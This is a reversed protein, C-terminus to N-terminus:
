NWGRERFIQEKAKQIEDFKRAYLEQTVPDKDRCRDPHYKFSLKRWADIVQEKTSNYPIELVEYPDSSDTNPPSTPKDDDKPGDKPEDKPEQPEQQQNPKKTKTKNKQRNVVLATTAVSVGIFAIVSILSYDISQSNQSPTLTSTTSSTIHSTPSLTPLLTPNSTPDPLNAERIEQIDVTPMVANPPLNRIRVWQVNNQYNQSLQAMGIQASTTSFFDKSNFTQSGYNVTSYSGASDVWLSWVQYSNTSGGAISTSFGASTDHNYLAYQGNNSNDSIVYQPFTLGPPNWGWVANPSISGVIGTFYSCSDFVQAQPNFKPNSVISEWNTGGKITLGNSLSYSGSTFPLSWQPNLDPGKFNDYFTFVSAGNDYQGYSPSLQPAEGTTQSNFLCTTPSAFGMYIIISSSAPIGDPMLLWYLTGSSSASNGSELWSHIITGSSDFFEINQLNAAEYSSFSASDVAIMQQFPTPTAASQTNTLTVPVAYLIGEPANNVTTIPIPQQLFSNYLSIVQGQTLASNFIRLEDIAGNFFGWTGSAAPWLGWETLGLYNYTLIGGDLGALGDIAGSISGILSGDVYLSQFDNTATIVANHWKGDNVNFWTRIPSPVGSPWSTVWFSGWLKGDTGVSLISVYSRQLEPYESHQYGVIVGSATTKFWVSITISALTRILNPPLKVYQDIGNLNLASGNIGSVWTPNNILVGTNGNGTNDVANGDFNWYGVLNSLQGNALHDSSNTASFFSVALFGILWVTVLKKNL